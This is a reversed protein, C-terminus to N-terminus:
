KLKAFKGLSKPHCIFYQFADLHHAREEIGHKNKKKKIRGTGDDECEELDLIFNVCKSDILVRIPLREGKLVASLFAKRGLSDHAIAKYRPNSTPIRDQCLFRYDGLGRKLDEFHSKTAKIGSRKLGSADGYLFFANDIHVSETFATGLDAANNNPPKCNIEKFVRVEWYSTHGNWLSNEVYVMQCILGSMQPAVNFDVTYQLPIGEIRALNHRVHRKRSFDPAFMLSSNLTGWRGKRYVTYYLENINGLNILWAQYAKDIFSNDEFTTNIVRTTITQITGDTLETEQSFEWVKSEELYNVDPCEFDKDDLLQPEVHKVLWHSRSVPNFTLYMVKPYKTNGRLRSQLELYDEEELETPEEVWISTIGEISKLHDRNDMGLMIVENGNALCTVTYDSKNFKFFREVGWAYVENKLRQFVSNKIKNSYKRVFLFRHKGDHETLLRKLILQSCYVSKGSGAGGFFVLNRGTYDATYDKYIQNTKIAINATPM